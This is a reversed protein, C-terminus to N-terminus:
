FYLRAGFGYSVVDEDFSAQIGLAITEGVKYWAAGGLATSDGGDGFDVYALGGALELQDSVNSRLGITLGYGTDDVSGFIGADVEARVWTLDVFASTQPSIETHFGGGIQLQTVDVGFDFDTSSYSGVLHWEPSVEYSGGFVFGDGDVDAGGGADLEVIQFGANAYNYSPQQAWVPASLALVFLGIVLRLM